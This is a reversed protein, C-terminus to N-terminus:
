CVILRVILRVSICANVARGAGRVLAADDGM